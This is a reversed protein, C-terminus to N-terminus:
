YRKRARGWVYALLGLASGGLLSLTSPEPVTSCQYHYLMNNSYTWLDSGSQSLGYVTTSYGLTGLSAGTTSDYVATAGFALDATAAYISQPFIRINNTVDLAEVQLPGYYFRSGDLSLVSSGGGVQASGYVGTGVAATFSNGVLRVVDIEHSTSGSNGHYVRGTAPDYEIDGYYDAYATALTTMKSATGWQELHVRVWQDSELLIVRGSDVAELKYTDVLSQKSEWQRTALDYRQVYHPNTLTGYGMAVGGWDAAYLYRGDPTLDMDKFQQNALHVDIEQHTKTDVVRIASGSNRLFLLDYQQSYCLQSAAGPASFSEELVPMAAGRAITVNSLCFTAFATLVMIKAVFVPFVPRM